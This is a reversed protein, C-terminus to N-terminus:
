LQHILDRGSTVDIKGDSLHLTVSRPISGGTAESEILLGNRWLINRAALLNRKGVNLSGINGLGSVEAGGVLRVRCRAKDLGLTYAAEFLLPLGTNAFAAPQTRAREPNVASDPLLFHLLGGVRATEDWICVAICSGLAHAVITDAAGLSVAFEGIGVVHRAAARAVDFGSNAFAAATRLPVSVLGCAPVRGAGGV